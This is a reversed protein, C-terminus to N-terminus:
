KKSRGNKVGKTTTIQKIDEKFDEHPGVAIAPRKDSDPVITLGTSEQSVFDLLEMYFEEDQKEVQTPSKLSIDLFSEFESDSICMTELKEKAANEDKWKRIARKQVLKFGEIEVGKNMLDFAHKRVADIWMEVVDAKKLISSIEPAILKQPEPFVPLDNFDTKADELAIKKAQPCISLAPCWKCWSGTNYSTPKELANKVGLSLASAFLKLAETPIEWTRIPGLDHFARPQVIHLKITEFNWSFKHAIGVAYYLLQPNNKAEVAYGQGYKFDIIHLTNFHDVIAADLTGFMDPHIFDLSVKTEIMLTGHTEKQLKNVYKSYSYAHDLMEKDYDSVVINKDDRLMKEALDHAKTGEDAYQSSVQPPALECLTVSGPCNLWRESSSAAYKSHKKVGSM